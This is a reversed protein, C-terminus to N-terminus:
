PFHEVVFQHVIARQSSRDVVVFITVILSGDDTSWIQTSTGQGDYSGHGGAGGTSMGVSELDSTLHDAITKAADTLDRSELFEDSLDLVIEALGRNQWDRSQLVRRIHRDGPFLPNTYPHSMHRSVGNPWDVRNDHLTRLASNRRGLFLEAGAPPASKASWTLAVIAVIVLMLAAGKKVSM